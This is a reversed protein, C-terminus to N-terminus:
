KILTYMVYRPQDKKEVWVSEIDYGKVRLNYIISSLRTAKFLKIAKWSDIFGYKKLYKLVEESKNIKSM